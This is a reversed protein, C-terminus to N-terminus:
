DQEDSADLAKHILPNPFGERNLRRMLRNRDREDQIDYEQAVRLAVVLWDDIDDPLVERIVESAIGRRLLRARVGLPGHKGHALAEAAMDAAYVRDDLLGLDILRELAAECRDEDIGRRKLRQRLEEVTLRRGTLFKLALALADSSM